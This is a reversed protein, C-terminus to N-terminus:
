ASYSGILQACQAAFVEASLHAITATDLHMGHTDGDCLHTVLRGSFTQHSVILVSGSLSLLHDIAPATPVDPTVWDVTELKNATVGQSQILQWTQQARVYPSVFVHDFTKNALHQKANTLVQQQGFSTLERQEDSPARAEAQGHRMIFLESM